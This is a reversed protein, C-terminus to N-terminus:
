MHIIQEADALMVSPISQLKDPVKRFGKPKPDKERYTQKRGKFNSAKQNTYEVSQLSVIHQKTVEVIVERSVIHLEDGSLMQFLLYLSSEMSESFKQIYNLLYSFDEVTLSIITERSGFDNGRTALAVRVDYFTFNIKVNFNPNFTEIKLSEEGQEYRLNELIADHISSNYLYEKLEEIKSKDFRPM